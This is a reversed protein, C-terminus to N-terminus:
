ISYSYCYYCFWGSSLLMSSIGTTNTTGFSIISPGIASLNYHISLCLFSQSTKMGRSFGNFYESLILLSQIIKIANV